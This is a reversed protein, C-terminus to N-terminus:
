VAHRHFSIFISFLLLCTAFHHGDICSSLSMSAPFFFLFNFGILWNQSPSCFLHQMHVQIEGIPTIRLLQIYPSCFHLASHFLRTAQIRSHVMKWLSSFESLGRSQKHLPSQRATGLFSSFVVWVCIVRLCNKNVLFTPFKSVLFMLLQKAESCPCTVINIM